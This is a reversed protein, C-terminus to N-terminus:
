RKHIRRSINRGGITRGGRTDVTGVDGAGDYLYFCNRNYQMNLKMFALLEYEGIVHQPILDIIVKSSGSQELPQWNDKPECPEELKWLIVTLTIRQPVRAYVSKQCSSRNCASVYM